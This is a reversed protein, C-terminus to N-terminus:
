LKNKVEREFAEVIEKEVPAIHTRGKVFGNTRGTGNRSVHGNELLHPLGAQTNYLYGQTSFRGTEFQTTWTKAYKQDRKNTTGFTAQSESRMLKVGQKLVQKTAADLNGKVDESYEGLIKEVEKAFNDLTLKAM